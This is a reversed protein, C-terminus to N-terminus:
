IYSTSIVNWCDYESRSHGLSMLTRFIAESTGDIVSVAMIAPHDDWYQSSCCKWGFLWNFYDHVLSDFSCSVRGYSDWDKAEKFLRIGAILLSFESCVCTLRSLASIFLLRVMRFVLFKGHHPHLLM